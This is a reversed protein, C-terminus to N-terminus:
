QVLDLLESAEVAMEKKKQRWFPYPGAELPTIPVIKKKEKEQNKEKQTKTKARARKKGLTRDDLQPREKKQVNKSLQCM